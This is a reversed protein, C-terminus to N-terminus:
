HTCHHDARGACTTAFRAMVDDAYVYVTFRDVTFVQQPAGVVAPPPGPIFGDAPDAVVFTAGDFPTFWGGIGNLLDRCMVQASDAGCQAGAAAPLTDLSGGSSLRLAVADWYSAYGRQLGHALLTAQLAPLSRSEVPQFDDAGTAAAVRVASVTVFACVLVAAVARGRPRRPALPLLAAVTFFLATQYHQSSVLRAPVSTDGGPLVVNSVLLAGLLLLASFLWYAVHAARRAAAVDVAPDLVARRTVALVAVAAIAIALVAPVLTVPGTPDSTLSLGNALDLVGQGIVHVHDGLAALTTGRGTEGGIGSSFGASAMWLHVGAFAASAFVATVAVGLVAGGASRGRGRAWLAAPVLPLLGTVVLLGDAAAAAGAALGVVASVVVVVPRRRREGCLLVVFLGLLGTMCWTAEHFGPAVETLLAAPAAGAGLALALGAAWGGAVTRVAVAIAALGIWSLLLPAMAWVATDHGIWETAAIALAAAPQGIEVPRGATGAALARGVLLASAVDSNARLQAVITSLEAAVVGLYAALGLLHVRSLARVLATPARRPPEAVPAGTVV